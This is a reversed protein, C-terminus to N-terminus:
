GECGMRLLRSRNFHRDYREPVTFDDIRLRRLRTMFEFGLRSEEGTTRLRCLPRPIVSLAESGRNRRRLEAERAERRSVASTQPNGVLSREAIREWSDEVEAFTLHYEELPMSRVFQMADTGPPPPAALGVEDNPVAGQGPVRLAHSADMMAEHYGQLVEDRNAGFATEYLRNTLLHQLVVPLYRVGNTTAPYRWTRQSIRLRGADAERDFLRLLGDVVRGLREAATMREEANIVNQVVAWMLTFSRRQSLWGEWAGRIESHLHGLLAERQLLFPDEPVAELSPTLFASLADLDQLEALVYDLGGQRHLAPVRGVARELSLYVPRPVVRQLGSALAVLPNNIASYTTPVGAANQM